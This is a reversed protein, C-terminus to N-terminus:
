NEKVKEKKKVNEKEGKKLIVFWIFPFILLALITVLLFIKVPKPTPNDFYGDGCKLILCLEAILLMICASGFYGISERVGIAYMYYELVAPMGVVLHIIMLSIVVPNKPTMPIVMKLGFLNVELLLLSVIIFFYIFYRRPSQLPKWEYIRYSRPTFQNLMRRIKDKSEVDEILRKDWTRFALYNVLKMGIFIGLGNCVLVDLIVSDWWCENFNPFWHKLCRECVEFLISITWCLTMNRLILAQMIWGFFHALVFVDFVVPKVNHFPDQPTSRDYIVCSQSYDRDATINGAKGPTILMMGKIIVSRDVTCLTIFVIILIIVFALILRWFFPHPRILPGDQLFMALVVISILLVYLFKFGPTSPTFYLLIFLFAGAACIRHPEYLFRIKSSVDQWQLYSIDYGESSSDHIKKM